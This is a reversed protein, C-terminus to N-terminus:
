DWWRNIHKAIQAFLLDNEVKEKTAWRESIRMFVKAEASTLKDTFSRKFFTPIAKEIEKISQDSYYGSTMREALIRCVKIRKQQAPTDLAPLDANLFYLEMDRLKRELIIYFYCQDWDYDNWIIPLWRVLKNIRRSILRWRWSVYKRLSFASMQELFDNIEDLTTLKNTRAM